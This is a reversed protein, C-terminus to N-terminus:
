ILFIYIRQKLKYLVTWDLQFGQWNVQRLLAGFGVLWARLRM